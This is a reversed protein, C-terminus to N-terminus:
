YREAMLADREDAPRQPQTRGLDARLSEGLEEPPVAESAFRVQHLFAIMAHFAAMGSHPPNKGRTFVWGSNQGRVIQRRNTRHSGYMFSAQPDGFIDGNDAEIVDFEASVRLRRQGGKM